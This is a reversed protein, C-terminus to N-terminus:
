RGRGKLLKHVTDWDENEGLDYYFPIYFIYDPKPVVIFMQVTDLNYNCEYDIHWTIGCVDEEDEKTVATNEMYEKVANDIREKIYEVSYVGSAITTQIGNNYNLQVYKVNSAVLHNSM